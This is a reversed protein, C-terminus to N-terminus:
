LNAVWPGLLNRRGRLFAHTSLCGGWGKATPSAVDLFCLMLTFSPCQTQGELCTFQEQSRPKSPKFHIPYPHSGLAGPEAAGYMDGVSGEM